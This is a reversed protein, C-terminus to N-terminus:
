LGRTNTAPCRTCEPPVRRRARRSPTGVRDRASASQATGAPVVGQVLVTQYMPIYRLERGIRCDQHSGVSYQTTYQGSKVGISLGRTKCAALGAPNLVISLVSANPECVCM